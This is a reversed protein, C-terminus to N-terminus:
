QNLVNKYHNIMKLSLKKQSFLSKCYERIKNPDYSSYNQYLTIMASSMDDSKKNKVIIGTEESIIEDREITGLVVDKIFKKFRHKTFILDKENNYLNSYLKQIIIVRPSQNPNYHTKM